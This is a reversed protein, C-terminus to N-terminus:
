SSNPSACKNYQTCTRWKAAFAPQPVLTRISNVAPHVVAVHTMRFCQVFVCLPFGRCPRFIGFYVRQKPPPHIIGAFARVVCYVELITLAPSLSHCWQLKLRPYNSGVLTACTLSSTCYLRTARMVTAGTMSDCKCHEGIAWMWTKQIHVLSAISLISEGARSVVLIDVYMRSLRFMAYQEPAVVSFSRTACHFNCSGTHGRSCYFWIVDVLEGSRLPRRGYSCTYRGRM